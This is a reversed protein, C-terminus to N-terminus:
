IQYFPLSYLSGAMKLALFPRVGAIRTGPSQHDRRPSVCWVPCVERAGDGKALQDRLKVTDHGLDSAIKLLVEPDAIDQGEEFYMAMISDVMQNRREEDILSVLRHALMTNPMRTIQGFNFKVGVAAGSNTVQELMQELRGGMKEEMVKHFPLGEEPLMPDLQFARFRVNVTEDTEWKDLADGLNKKGIRCWPCVMDSYVDIQM